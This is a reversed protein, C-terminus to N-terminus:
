RLFRLVEALIFVCYGFVFVFGVFILYYVEPATGLAPFVNAFIWEEFPDEWESQEQLTIVEKVFKEPEVTIKLIHHFKGWDPQSSVM